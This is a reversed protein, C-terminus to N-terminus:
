LLRDLLLNKDLDLRTFAFWKKGLDKLSAGIHYIQNDVLLFRDHSKHFEQLELKGYQENFKKSALDLKKSIDKTYITIPVKCDTFLTLTDENVYNDILIISEKAQSILVSVLKYSDFLQGDFFIGQSPTLQKQELATFLVDFKSDQEIFKQDIQQIKQFLGANQQIYNRMAVFEEIIKISIEIAKKSKLVGALMSVGQETFVLPEKRLGMKEKNSIVIQSKWNQLEEENLQFCFHSPFRELNRKVAQNLVRTEVEYLEALDRDLLVQQNRITLIKDKIDM